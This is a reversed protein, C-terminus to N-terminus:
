EAAVAARKAAKEAKKAKANNKEWQERKAEMKVADKASRKRSRMMLHYLKRHKNPVLMERLRSPYYVNNITSHLATCIFICSVSLYQTM